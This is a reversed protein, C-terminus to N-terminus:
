RATNSTLLRAIKRGTSSLPVEELAGARMWRLSPCAPKRAGPAPRAHYCDLTIRFRTVGHRLSHFREGLVVALGTQQQVRRALNASSDSTPVRPFDWLGAWREDARCQRLLFRGNSRVAVAAEHLPEFPRKPKGAPVRDQSGAARAACLSALPCVPCRPVRPLCVQSGIEMLAQNLTGPDRLPLAQEAFRWLLRQGAASTPDGRYDLLRAHLRLTNAELIPERRGAAISLIAGATYRGIGPLARLQEARDPIRGHHRQVIERAAQHLQRARRYYGLGEWLRLVAEEEAAALQEVTPFAAMFRQYYDVVTAVQTQQLMVESVWTQYPAPAERWPLRRAHLRYWGLARRRFRAFWAAEPWEVECSDASQPQPM